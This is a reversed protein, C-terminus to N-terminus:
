LLIHGGLQIDDWMDRSKLRGYPLWKQLIMQMMNHTDTGDLMRQITDHFFIVLKAKFDSLLQGILPDM